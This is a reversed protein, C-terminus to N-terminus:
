EDVKVYRYYMTLGIIGLLATTFIKIPLSGVTTYVDFLALGFDMYVIALGFKRLADKGHSYGFIFVSFGILAWIIDPLFDIVDAPIGLVKGHPVWRPMFIAFIAIVSGNVALASTLPEGKYRNENIFSGAVIIIGVFTVVLAYIVFETTSL